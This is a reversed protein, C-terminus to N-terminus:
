RIASEAMEVVWTMGAGVEDCGRLRIDLPSATPAPKLGAWGRLPLGRPQGSAPSAWASRTEGALPPFTWRVFPACGLGVMRLDKFDPNLCKVGAVDTTIYFGLASGLANPDACPFRLIAALRPVRLGRVRPLFSLQIFTFLGRVPVCPAALM